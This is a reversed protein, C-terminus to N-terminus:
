AALSWDPANKIEISVQMGAQIVPAVLSHVLAVAPRSSGGVLTHDSAQTGLLICGETDAATNGAHMRIYQYGPVNQITLTDEGYKPSYELTVPYVGAPIATKGKVKWQAVPVGPRERVLDELTYCIHKTDIYLDGVTADFQSPRRKLTLQM